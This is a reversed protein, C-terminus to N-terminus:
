LHVHVQNKPAKGDRYLDWVYNIDEANLGHIVDWELAKLHGSLLWRPLATWFKRALNPANHSLGASFVKEFGVTKFPIRALDAEGPCLTAMRGRKSNSLCAVGLTHEHNVADIVYMCDDGVIARIREIVEYEDGHRDVVHTPGFAELAAFHRPGAVAVITSFLGSLSAFQVTYRGCNSGGGVVVISHGEHQQSQSSDTNFPPPLGLVSPNFLAWFAAVANSPLSAGHDATFGTPVKATTYTDLLCFEQLGSQDATRKAHNSQGFILNGIQLDVDNNQPGLAVVIGAIDNGLVMPMSDPDVFLGLDRVRFDYPNLGVVVVKLLVEGPGPTPISRQILRAPEGFEVVALADM